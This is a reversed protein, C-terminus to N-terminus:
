RVEVKFLVNDPHQHRWRFYETQHSRSVKPFVVYDRHVEGLYLRYARDEHDNWTHYDHGDRDYYKKDHHDEARAAVPVLWAAGLLFGSVVLFRHMINAEVSLLCAAPRETKAPRIAASAGNGSHLQGYNTM